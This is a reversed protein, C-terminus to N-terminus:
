TKKPAKIIPTGYISIAEFESLNLNSLYYILMHSVTLKLLEYIENTIIKDNRLRSKM